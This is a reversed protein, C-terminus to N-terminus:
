SRWGTLRSHTHTHIFTLGPRSLVALRLARTWCLRHCWVLDGQEHIAWQVGTTVQTKILVPTRLTNLPAEVSFYRGHQIM